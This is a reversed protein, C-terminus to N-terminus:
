SDIPVVTAQYLQDESSKYTPLKTGFSQSIVGLLYVLTNNCLLNPGVDPESLSGTAGDSYKRRMYAQSM